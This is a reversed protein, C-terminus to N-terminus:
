VFLHGLKVCCVLKNDSCQSHVSDIMSYNPNFSGKFDDRKLGGRGRVPLGEDWCPAGLGM